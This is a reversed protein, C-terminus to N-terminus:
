IETSKDSEEPSRSKNTTGNFRPNFMCIHVAHTMSKIIVFNALGQVIAM